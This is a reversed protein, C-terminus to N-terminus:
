PLTKRARPVFGGDQKACLKNDIERREEWLAARQPYGSDVM